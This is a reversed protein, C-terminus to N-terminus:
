PNKAVGDDSGRAASLMLELDNVTSPGLQAGVIQGSPSIAFTEPQGRTGFELAARANPDFAISWALDESEAYDRVATKTDDRVIGVMAFDSESQHRRYFEKLAPLEQICPVCWTNWFNVIVSRGLLSDSTLRSGDLQVLEVRPIPKGLLASNRQNALPDSGINLAFVVGLAILVVAIAATVWRITRRHSVAPPGNEGVTPDIM